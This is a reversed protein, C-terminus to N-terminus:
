PTPTPIAALSRLTALILEADEICQDKQEEFLVQFGTLIKRDGGVYAVFELKGDRTVTHVDFDAGGIARFEHEVKLGAPLGRGSWPAITCYPILRHALLIEGFNSETQAWADPDYDMRFLLGAESDGPYTPLGTWAVRSPAFPRETPLELLPLLTETPTPGPLTATDRATPTLAPRRTSTAQIRLAETPAPPLPTATQEVPAIFPPIEPTITVLGPISPLETPAAASGCATLLFVLTLLFLKRMAILITEIRRRHDRLIFGTDLGAASKVM